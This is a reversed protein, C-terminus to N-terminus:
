RAVEQASGRLKELLRRLTVRDESSLGGCASRITHYHDPLTSEMLDEGRQTLCAVRVRRDRPDVRREVLGTKELCDMLGTINARSVLLLESLHHLAMEHPTSFHLIALLNFASLSLGARNLTRNLLTEVVDHTYVLHLVLEVSTPDADPYRLCRQGVGAYYATRPDSDLAKADTQETETESGTELPVPTAQACPQHNQPGTSYCSM